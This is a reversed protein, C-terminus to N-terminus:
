TCPEYRRTGGQSARQLQDAPNQHTSRAHHETHTDRLAAVAVVYRPVSWAIRSRLASRQHLPVARFPAPIALWEMLYEFWSLRRSTPSRAAPRPPRSGPTVRRSRPLPVVALISKEPRQRSTRPPAAGPPSGRSITRFGLPSALHGPAARSKRPRAMVAPSAAALRSHGSM